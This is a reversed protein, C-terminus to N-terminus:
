KKLIYVQPAYNLEPASEQDNFEVKDYWTGHKPLGVRRVDLELVDTEYDDLKVFFKKSENNVSIIPAYFTSAFYKFPGATNTPHIKLDDVLKREGNLEYWLTLKQSPDIILPEGAENALVFYFRNPIDKENFGEKKCSFLASVILLSALCIVKM